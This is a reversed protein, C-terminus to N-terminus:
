ASVATVRQVAERKYVAATTNYEMAENSYFDISIDAFDYIVLHLEQYGEDNSVISYNLMGRLDTLFGEGLLM